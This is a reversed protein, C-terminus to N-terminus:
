DIGEVTTQILLSIWGDLLCPPLLNKLPQLLDIAPGNCQNGPLIGAAM